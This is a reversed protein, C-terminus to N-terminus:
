KIKKEAFLIHIFKKSYNKETARVYPWLLVLTLCLNIALLIFNDCLKIITLCIIIHYPSTNVGISKMRGFAIFLM